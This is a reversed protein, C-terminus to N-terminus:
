HANHKQNSYFKAIVFQYGKSPLKSFALSIITNLNTFM